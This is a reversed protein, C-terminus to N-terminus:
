STSGSNWAPTPVASAARGSRREHRHPGAVAPGARRVPLDHGPQGTPQAPLLPETVGWARNLAVELPEFVGNATILLLLMAVPQFTGRLPLNRKLFAGLDGPLYDNMALYIADVAAPWRLVDRCFSLMVNLFPYFSLLVSAAVALAYM